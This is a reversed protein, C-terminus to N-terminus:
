DWPSESVSGPAPLEDIFKKFERSAILLAEQLTESAPPAPKEEPFPLKPNMARIATQYNLTPLYDMGWCHTVISQGEESLWWEPLLKYHMGKNDKKRAMMGSQLLPKLAARLSRIRVGSVLHLYSESIWQNLNGTDDYRLGMAAALGKVVKFTAYGQDYDKNYM